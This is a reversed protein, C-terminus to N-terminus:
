LLRFGQPRSAPALTQAGTLVAQGETLDGALVETMRGDSAGLRLQVASPRGNHDVVFVRGPTGPLDGAAEGSEGAPKSVGAHRQDEHWDAPRFRLAANPVLLVDHKNAVVVQLNATMGPLLAEDPNEASIVVVYTVVNQTVQAAKRIQVVEGAFTRGPYADVSYTVRQGPAFRGVDAEVVAAHVQMQRLDQAITFLTPAQLSAAVTQGRTVNRNVVTGTVPARIDTNKLDIMSQRVAAERQKVRELQAKLQVDAIGVALEAARIAALQLLEQARAATVEAKASQHANEVREREAISVVAREALSQRRDLERKALDVALEARATAAKAAAHQARAKELEARAREIQMRHLLVLTQDYEFGAKTEAARAYYMESNIRAIVQGQTVRTNFDAYLEEVQGSIQSGVEVTVVPTLTGAATVAVVLDGREVPTTRYASTNAHNNWPQLLLVAASTPAVLLALLVGLRPGYRWTQPRAFDVGSGSLRSEYLRQM